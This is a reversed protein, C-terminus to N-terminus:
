DRSEFRYVGSGTHFIAAGGETKVFTVGEAQAAPKTSETVAQADKAPVHVDAEAGVPVEVDMKLRGSERRWACRIRGRVSEYAAQASTLDGVVAPKITIQRFGPAAPSIGGLGRYFWEEAHGLM